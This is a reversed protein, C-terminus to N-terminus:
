ALPWGGPSQLIAEATKKHPARSLERLRGASIREDRTEQKSDTM